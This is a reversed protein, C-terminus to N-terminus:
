PQKEAKPDQQKEDVRVHLHTVAQIGQEDTRQVRVLYDGPKKYRHVLVAYGDKAHQNVNGDSKTEVPPSGDGFDWTEHGATTGFARVKFTIPDGPQIHFTPYYVAHLRPPSSDTRHQITVKVFDYDVRGAQDTVKLIESYSGPRNYTREVRPGSATTGDTFTWEYSAVKGAASWSRTGDLMVKQGVFAYRSPRAVAVLKLSYQRQYAEWIFAYGEQTGWKGSPQRSKIEFHLHTWGGSGGEKGILGITEGKKVTRGPLVDVAIMQLHSYRYYWGRDDLLYVVDYRPEVPTDEYGPMVSNTGSCVVLGDTAAVVQVMGEAGGIDLGAHYYLKGGARPSVPENAMSTGSAFWRQKVPYVFTGPAVLPSGSPWLRLRTDKVLGWHDIHSNQTPGKTIPCDIRVGGITVPRHYLASNLVVVQGNVEVKVQAERVESMVEGRTEQLDLLKVTARKGNCLQVEQTEGINLDVVRVLPTRSPHPPAAHIQIASLSLLVSVAAMMKARQTAIM